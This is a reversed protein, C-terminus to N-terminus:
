IRTEKEKRIEKKRKKKSQYNYTLLSVRDSDPLIDNGLEEKIREWETKAMEAETEPSIGVMRSRGIYYNSVFLIFIFLFYILSPFLLCGSIPVAELHTFYYAGFLVGGAGVLILQNKPFGRGRGGGFRAAQQAFLPGSNPRM